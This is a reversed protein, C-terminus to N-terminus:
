TSPTLVVLEGLMPALHLPDDAILSPAEFRTPGIALGDQAQPGGDPYRGAYTATGTRKPQTNFFRCLTANPRTEPLQPESSFYAPAVTM